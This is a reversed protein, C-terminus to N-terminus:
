LVLYLSYVRVIEFWQIVFRLGTSSYFVLMFEELLQLVLPGFLPISIFYIRYCRKWEGRIRLFGLTERKGCWGYCLSALSRGSHRAELQTGWVKLHLVDHGCYEKTSGLGVRSSQLALALARYTFSLPSFPPRDIRWKRQM